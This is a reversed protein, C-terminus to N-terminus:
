AAEGVSGWECREEAAPVYHALTEALERADPEVGDREFRSLCDLVGEESVGQSRAVAIEREYARRRLDPM